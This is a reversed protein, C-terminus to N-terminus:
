EKDEEDYSESQKTILEHWLAEGRETDAKIYNHGDYVASGGMVQNPTGDVILSGAPHTNLFWGYIGTRRGRAKEVWDIKGTAYCHGCKVYYHFEKGKYKFYKILEKKGKCKECIEYGEDDM